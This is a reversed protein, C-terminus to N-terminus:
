VPRDTLDIRLGAALTAGVAPVRLIRARAVGEALDEVIATAVLSGDAARVLAAMGVRAAAASLALEIRTGPQAPAPAVLRAPIVRDTPAHASMLLCVRVLMDMAARAEGADGDIRAYLWDVLGQQTRRLAIPLESWRPLGALEDMPAPADFGSLTEAWGLRIAPPAEGFAAHLCAAIRGIGEIESAADRALMPRNHEGAVLDGLSARQAVLRRATSLDLMAVAGLDIQLAAIRRPELAARTAAMATFVAGLLPPAGAPLAPPAPPPLAGLRRAALLAGRAADIRDLLELRRAVAPFWAVPADRFLAVVDNIEEPVGPHDDLCAAVPSPALAAVAPLTPAAASREAERPRRFVVATVHRAIVETRRANVADVRATEEALLAAAVGLDHRAEEVEVDISRLRTDIAGIQEAIRGRVARLDEVMREYVDVRAEVLRWLAVTNDIARVAASFLDAEHTAKADSPLGDNDRYHGARDPDRMSALVEAVSGAADPAPAPGVYAYGPMPLDGLAVGRPHDAALAADAILGGVSALAALKGALAYHLAEMAPPSALREAVSTTREVLGPLPRQARVDAPSFGRGTKEVRLAAISLRAASAKLTAATTAPVPLIPQLRDVPSPMNLRMGSRGVAGPAPQARYASFRVLEPLLVSLPPTPIPQPEKPRPPTALPDDADRRFDARFAGKAFAAIDLGRGRASEERVALDALTPSTVLKSAADVGLMFQRLRYTDARTRTFGLDVADNTAQIRREMEGVFGDIGLEDLMALDPGLFPEPWRARFDRLAASGRVGDAAVTGFDPEVMIAISGAPSQVWGGAAAPVSELKSGPPADDAIWVAEMGSASLRGVPGFEATGAFQLGLGFTIADLATDVLTEGSPSWAADASVELRTWVGIPPLPGRVLMQLNTPLGSPNGWMAGGQHPTSGGRRRYRVDISVRQTPTPAVVRVWVYLRDGERLPLSSGAGTLILSPPSTGGAVGTLRRIRTCTVPARATPYPLVENVPLDAIPWEARQGTVADTLIDRRRRVLERRVLWETRDRTYREVAQAFAPDVAARELLGPEYVAPPVPVLLEVRDPIDRNFPVMAAADRVVIDLQDAPIPAASVAFGAPFFRQRRVGPSLDVVSAPLFGVPPLFRLAATLTGPELDPLAALHEVFQAVRAQWLLANGSGPVLQTRPLPQGGMRVVAARDVFALRWDETFGLLALPLGLGEWPHGTGPPLDREVAFIRAALLNRQAPGAVPAAYGQGTGPPRLESPWFDLVLRCGDILRLDDYPDDRPDPPCADRVGALITATVPEAVLVAVRSLLSSGAEELLRGFAGGLRRPLLTPSTAAPVEPLAPEAAPAPGDRLRRAREEALRDLLDVRARVQLDALAVRRPSAVIVDEGARTLGSGPLLQVFAADPLGGVAGPEALVDLGAIVGASVSQGRLRQMGSRQAQEASLARDSLSRGTFPNIRRRWVDPLSPRLPPDTGLVHEDALPADIGSVIRM